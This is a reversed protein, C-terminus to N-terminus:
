PVNAVGRPAPISETDKGKPPSGKGKPEQGPPPMGGQMMMQEMMEAQEAETHAQLHAIVNMYGGPNTMKQDMGIEGVCWEKIIAIHVGHEDVEKEIPVSAELIPTGDMPNLGVPQPQGKLLEYIEFLQKTRDADGPVTLEPIGVLEAVTHRNEPHFMAENIADNNLELLRMIIDRKQSWALPFQESLEPEVQGVEGTMEAKRIWVNIYSNRGQSKVIKEDNKMNKAYCKVAKTELDSWFFSIMKYVIQLRQLAQARSMSYEAATDSGGSATGGYVSPVTGLVFQGASQLDDAFEKHERSLMAAKNTYFAAGINGGAPAKVPYLSGPSIEMERYKQFDIVSSDVFTEPIGYRITEVTLQFLENTMEQVPVVSNAVPQGHVRDLIPDVSVTWYEDMDEDNVEALVDNIYVARIGRPFQEKLALMREDDSKGLKNFMWPRLWVQRCTCVDSDDDSQVLSPARVWRDYRESDATPTIQDAIHPFKEQMEAVDHESNLILYGSQELTRARPFIQVSMPGYLEIIQRMKPIIEQYDFEQTEEEEVESMPQVPTGCNPCVTQGQPPAMGAMEPPMMGQPAGPPPMPPPGQPPPAVPLPESVAEPPPELLPEGEPVPPPSPLDTEPPLPPAPVEQGNMPQVALQEGCDPCYDVQTQAVGPKFHDIRDVGYKEHQDNYTYAAIMGSNYLLGLAKMFLFPAKNHKRILEALRSFSQATYIDASQDADNPFFRTAPISQSVAAIIIEGHAKYINVIKSEVDAEEMYNVDEGDPDSSIYRWDHAVESFYINQLGEWFYENRKCVKMLRDRAFQDKNDIDLIISDLGQRLETPLIADLVEDFSISEPM